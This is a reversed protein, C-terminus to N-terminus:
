IKGKGEKEVCKTKFTSFIPMPAIATDRGKEQTSARREDMIEDVIPLSTTSFFILNSDM